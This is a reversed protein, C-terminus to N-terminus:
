MGHKTMEENTHVFLEKVEEGFLFVSSIIVAVILAAMISYEVATAGAEDKFFFIIGKM